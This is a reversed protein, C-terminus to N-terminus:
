LSSSLCAARRRMGTHIVGCIAHLWNVAFFLRHILSKVLLKPLIAHPLTEQLTRLSPGQPKAAICYHRGSPGDVEFIDHALRTFDLGPHDFLQAFKTLRRLMKVENIVPSTETDDQVCVKLSLYLKSRHM